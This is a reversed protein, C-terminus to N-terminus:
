APDAIGYLWLSRGLRRRESRRAEGEPGPLSFVRVEGSDAQAEPRRRFIVVNADVHRCM